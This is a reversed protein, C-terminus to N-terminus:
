QLQRPLVRSKENSNALQQKKSHSFSKIERERKMADSRSNFEEMYVIKEPEHMKTYRAGQGKKHREVRRKVDRAYGTYYSGDKCLLIYVYHPM